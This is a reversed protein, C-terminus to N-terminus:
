GSATPQAFLAIPQGQLRTLFLWLRRTGDKPLRLQRQLQAVDVPSGRKAITLEGIHHHRVYQRLRKLQFPFWDLVAFSRALPTETLRDSTLYAISADLQSLNFRTALQQVLHARIVAGDPEYLYTQPASLPIDVTTDRSTLTEGTPLLTARRAPATRLDGYWLVCEKVEGNLSVFEAEATSPLEEYAVGPSIKVAASPTRERWREILSLPPQYAEVSHLRRGHADRRAPDFFLADAPFPPLHRVDAQLPSFRSGRGYVAVNHRALHLRALDYDVALVRGHAALALADGGVGCCLDVMLKVGLQAFRAARHAAVAEASAQELASRSFLMEDALRFKARAKPRLRLTELVAHTQEATLTQRLQTALAIHNHATLTHRLATQGAESLLFRIAAPTLPAAGM